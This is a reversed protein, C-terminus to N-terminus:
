ANGAQRAVRELHDRYDQWWAADVPAMNDNDARLGAAGDIARARHRRPRRPSETEAITHVLVPEAHWEGRAGWRAVRGISDLQAGRRDDRGLAGVRVTSLRRDARSEDATAWMDANPEADEEDM